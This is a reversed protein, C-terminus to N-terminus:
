NEMRYCMESSCGPVGTWWMKGGLSCVYILIGSLCWRMLYTWNPSALVTAKMDWLDMIWRHWTSMVMQIGLDQIEYGCFVRLILGGGQVTSTTWLEDSEKVQEIEKATGKMTYAWARCGGHYAKTKCLMWGRPALGMCLVWKFIAESRSMVPPPEHVLPGGKEDSVNWLFNSNGCWASILFVTRLVHNCRIKWM